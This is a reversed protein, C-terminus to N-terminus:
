GTNGKKYKCRYGAGPFWNITLSYAEIGPVPVDVEIV